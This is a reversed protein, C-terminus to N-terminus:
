RLSIEVRRNRPEPTDDTTPILLNREGHSEVSLAHAQLGAERLLASVFRARELGLAENHQTSGETDTHGIISVDVAPRAAASAIIETLLAQSDATLRTGGSDFYLLFRQPPPPSASMAAGFDREIRAAAVAAPAEGGDLAAGHGASRIHQEGREGRVVVAGTSGDPSELLVVYSKAACASLLASTAVILLLRAPANM